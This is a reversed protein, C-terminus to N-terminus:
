EEAKQDYLEMMVRYRNLLEVQNRSLAEMKEETVVFLGTLDGMRHIGFDFKYVAKM